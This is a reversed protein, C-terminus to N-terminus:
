LLGLALLQSRGLLCSAYPPLRLLLLLLMHMHVLQVEAVGANATGSWGCGSVGEACRLRRERGLRCGGVGLWFPFAVFM